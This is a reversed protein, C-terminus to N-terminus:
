LALRLFLIPISSGPRPGPRPPPPSAAPQVHLDDLRPAPPLLALLPPQQLGGDERDAEAKPSPLTSESCFKACVRQWGQVEDPAGPTGEAAHMAAVGCHDGQRAFATGMPTVCAQALTSALALLWVLLAGTAARRLQRRTAFM